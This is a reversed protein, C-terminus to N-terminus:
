SRPEDTRTTAPYTRTTDGGHSIDTLDIDFGLDPLPRGHDDFLIGTLDWTPDDTDATEPDPEDTSRTQRSAHRRAQREHEAATGLEPPIGPTNGVLLNPVETTDLAPGLDFDANFEEYNHLWTPPEGTLALEAETFLPEGDPLGTPLDDEFFFDFTNNAEAPQFFSGTAFGTDGDDHTVPEVPTDPPAPGGQAPPSEYGSLGTGGVEGSGPRSPLAPGIDGLVDPDLVDESAARSTGAPSGPRSGSGLDPQRESLAFDTFSEIFADRAVQVTDLHRGVFGTADWHMIPRLSEVMVERLKASRERFQSSNSTAIEAFLRPSPDERKIATEVRHAFERVRWGVQQRTALSLDNAQKSHFVVGHGVFAGEWRAATVVQRMSLLPTPMVAVTLCPGDLDTENVVFSTPRWGEAERIGAAILANRLMTEGQGVLQKRLKEVILFHPVELWMRIDPVTAPDDVEKWQAGFASAFDALAEVGPASLKLHTKVDARRSTTHTQSFEFRYAPLVVQSPRVALELPVQVGTPAGSVRGVVLGPPWLANQYVPLTTIEPTMREESVREFVSRVLDVLESMQRRGAEAAESMAKGKGAKAGIGIFVEVQVRVAAAARERALRAIEEDGQVLRVAEDAAAQARAAMGEVQWVVRQRVAPSLSAEGVEFVSNLVRLGRYGEVAEGSERGRWLELYSEGAQTRRVSGTVVPHPFGVPYGPWVAGRSREWEAVVAADLETSVLEIFPEVLVGATSSKRIVIKVDLSERAVGGQWRALVAGAVSRAWARVGDKVEEGIKGGAVRFLRGRYQLGVEPAPGNVLIRGSSRERKWSSIWSRLTSRNGLEKGTMAQLWNGSPIPEGKDYREDLVSFLFEGLLVRIKPPLAPGTRELSIGDPLRGEDRLKVLLEWLTESGDASGPRWNVLISRFEEMSLPSVPAVVYGERWQKVWVNIRDKSALEKGILAVLDPSSLPPGGKERRESQMAFVFERVLERTSPNLSKAYRKLSVDHPLRGEDQLKVLREWLTRAGDESGPRWDVVASRLEAMTLLVGDVVGSEESWKRVSADVLDGSALEPGIMAVLALVSVPPEGKELQRRQVSFVFDDVLEGASMSLTEAIRELSMDDSIDRSLRGEGRLKVLREWLTKSGPRWDVVLSRFEDVSSLVNGARYKKMWSAVIRSNALEKGILDVLESVSLPPKGESRQGNQVNVVFEEVLFQVARAITKETRKTALHGPLREQDHLQKVRNWLTPTDRTPRWNTVEARLEQDTLKLTLAPTTIDQSPHPHTGAAHTPGLAAATSPLAMSLGAETSSLAGQASRTWPELPENGRPKRRSLTAGSGNDGDSPALTVPSELGLAPNEPPATLRYAGQRPLLPPHQGVWGGGDAVYKHRPTGTNEDYEIEFVRAAPGAGTAGLDLLSEPHWVRVGWRSSAAKGLSDLGDQWCVFFRIEDRRNWGGAVLAYRVEDLSPVRHETIGIGFVNSERPLWGFAKAIVSEPIGLVAGMRVRIAGRAVPVLRGLPVLGADDFAWRDLPLGALEVELDILNESNSTPHFGEREVKALARASEKLVPLDTFIRVGGAEGLPAVEGMIDFVVQDPGIDLGNASLQIIQRNLAAKFVALVSEAREEGMRRADADGLNGRPGLGVIRVSVSDKEVLLNKFRWAAATAFGSAREEVSRLVDESLNALDNVAAPFSLNMEAPGDSILKSIKIGPYASGPLGPVLSSGESFVGRGNVGSGGDAYLTVVGTGGYVTVGEGHELQWLTRIASAIPVGARADNGYCSMLQLSAQLDPIAKRFLRSGAILSYAADSKVSFNDGLEAPTDTRLAIGLSDNKGHGQITWTRRKEAITPSAYIEGITSDGLSTILESSHYATRRLASTQFAWSTYADADTIKSIFGQGFVGLAKNTLPVTFVNDPGLDPHELREFGGIGVQLGGDGALVVRSRPVYIGRLFGGELMGRSFLSEVMIPEGVSALMLSRMRREPILPDLARRLEENGRLVRALEYEHILLESGDSRLVAVGGSAAGVLLVLPMQDLWPSDILVQEDGDGSLVTKLTESSANKAWMQADGLLEDDNKFRCFLAVLETDNNYLAEVMLDGDRYVSVESLDAEQSFIEDIAPSIERKPSVVTNFFGRARLASAFDYGLGEKGVKRGGWSAALVVSGTSYKSLAERFGEDQLLIAGLRYGDLEILTGMDTRVTAMSGNRSDVFVILDGGSFNPDEVKLSEALEHLESLSVVEGAFGYLSKSSWRSLRSISVEEVQARFESFHTGYNFEVRHSLYSRSDVRYIAMPGSRQLFEDAIMKGLQESAPWDGPLLPDIVLVLPSREEAELIKRMEDHSYIMDVAESHSFAEIQEGSVTPKLLNHTFVGVDFVLFVPRKNAKRFYQRWPAPITRQFSGVEGTTLYSLTTDTFSSYRHGNAAREPRSASMLGRLEGEPGRMELWKGNVSFPGLATEAVLGLRPAEQPAELLYHGDHTILDLTDLRRAYARGWGTGVGSRHYRPLVRGGAVELKGVRAAPGTGSGGLILEELPFEVYAIGLETALRQAFDELGDQYCIFLRVVGGDGLAKSEVSVAEIVLEFLPIRHDPFVIGLVGPEHQLWAGAKALPSQTDGVLLGAHVRSIESTVRVWSGLPVRGANDVDAATVPGRAGHARLPVARGASSSGAAAAEGAERDPQLLPRGWRTFDVPGGQPGIAARGSQQQSADRGPQSPLGSHIRRDQDVVAAAASSEAFEAEVRFASDATSAPYFPFDMVTRLGSVLDDQKGLNSAGSSDTERRSSIGRGYSSKELASNGRHETLHIESDSVRPANSVRPPNALPALWKALKATKEEAHTQGIRNVHDHVRQAVILTRFVHDRSVAAQQADDLSDSHTLFQIHDAAIQYASTALSDITEAPLKSSELLTRASGWARILQDPLMVKTSLPLGRTSNGHEYRASGDPTPSTLDRPSWGRGTTGDRGRELIEGGELVTLRAEGDGDMLGQSSPPVEARGAPTEGAAEGDSVRWGGGTPSRLADSAPGTQPRAAAGPMANTGAERDGSTPSQVGEEPEGLFALSESAMPDAARVQGPSSSGVSDGSFVPVIPSDTPDDRSLDAAAALLSGKGAQNDQISETRGPPGAMTFRAPREGARARPEGLQDATNPGVRGAAPTADVKRDQGAPQPVYNGAATAPERPRQAEAEPQEVLLNREHHERTVVQSAISSAGSPSLAQLASKGTNASKVPVVPDAFDVPKGNQSGIDSARVAIGDLTVPAPSRGAVPVSETVQGSRVQGSYGTEASAPDDSASVRPPELASPTGGHQDTQRVEPFFPSSSTMDSASPAGLNVTPLPATTGGVGPESETEPVSSPGDSQAVPTVVQSSDTFPTSITALADAPGASSLAASSTVFVTGLPTGATTVLGSKVPVTPKGAVEGDGPTERYVPPVEGSMEDWEGKGPKGGHDDRKKEPEDTKKELDGLKEENASNNIAKEAQITLRTLREPDVHFRSLGALTEKTKEAAAASEARGGMAGMAGLFGGWFAEEGGTAKNVLPTTALVTLMQGASYMGQGTMVLHRPIGAGPVTEVLRTRAAIAGARVFKAMSHALGAGAGGIVGSVVSSILSRTDFEDRDGKSIQVGQIAADLSGMLVAGFAGFKAMDVSLRMVGRGVQGVTLSRVAQVLARWVLGITVRAAAMVLPAMWAFWLSLLLEIVSALALAGMVAMLIKGKQVDAATKKASSALGEAIRALEGAGEALDGNVFGRLAEAFEGDLAGDVGQGGSVLGEELAELAGAFEGWAVSLGRLGAEDSEPWEMGLMVLFFKQLSGPLEVPRALEGM